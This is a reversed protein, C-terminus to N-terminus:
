APNLCDSAPKEKGSVMLKLSKLERTKISSLFLCWRVSLTPSAVDKSAVQSSELEEYLSCVNIM